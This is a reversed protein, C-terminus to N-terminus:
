KILGNARLSKMVAKCLSEIVENASEPNITESASSWILTETKIEYLNNELRVYKHTVNYGPEHVYGYVGPYARGLHRYHPAPV